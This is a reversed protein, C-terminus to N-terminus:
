RAARLSRKPKVLRKLDSQPIALSVKVLNAEAKVDLSDLVPQLKQVDPNQSGNGQVMSSLFHIVDVLGLADEDSRTVAQVDFRVVDGFTLGGSTETIGQM